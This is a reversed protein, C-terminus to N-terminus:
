QLHHLQILESCIREVSTKLPTYAFSPLAELLKSNDFYVKALATRATEKTIFPPKGTFLSKISALRWVVGAMFPTVEKHPPKKNFAEAILYFLDKYSINENSVIFREASIHSNMLLIMASAVDAVDVFGTVGTSYYPFEKYV